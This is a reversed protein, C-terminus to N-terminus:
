LTARPRSAPTGSDGAAHYNLPQDDQRDPDVRVIEKLSRCKGAPPLSDANPCGEICPNSRILPASYFFGATHPDIMLDADVV